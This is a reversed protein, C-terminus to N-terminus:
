KEELRDLTHLGENFEMDCTLIMNKVMLNYLKHYAKSELNYVVIIWKKSKVDVKTTCKNLCKGSMYMLINVEWFSDHLEVERLM